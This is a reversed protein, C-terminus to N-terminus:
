ESRDRKFKLQTIPKAYIKISGIVRSPVNNTMRTRKFKEPYLWWMWREKKLEWTAITDIKSRWNRWDKIEIAKQKTEEKIRKRRHLCKWWAITVTMVKVKKTEYSPKSAIPEVVIKEIKRKYIKEHRVLKKFKRCDVLRFRQHNRLKWQM